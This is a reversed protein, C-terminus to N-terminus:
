RLQFGDRGNIRRRRRILKALPLKIAIIARLRTEPNSEHAM